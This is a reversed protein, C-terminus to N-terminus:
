LLCGLRNPIVVGTLSLCGRFTSTGISALTHPLMINTLSGCGAFAYNGIATVSAPLTLNPLSTCGSFAGSGISTISGPILVNTLNACNEFAGSDIFTVGEPIVVSTWSTNESFALWGIAIVPLGDITDPITVAGGPGTYGTIWVAGNELSYEFQAQALFPLTLLLPLAALPLRRGCVGPERLPRLTAAMSPQSQM